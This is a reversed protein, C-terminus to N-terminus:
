NKRRALGAIGLLGAGLLLLTGPEPVSTTYTYTVTTTGGASANGGFFVGPVANGSYQGNQASVSYTATLAAPPIIFLPFDAPPVVLALTGSGTLGPFANFGPTAIGNIPGAVANVNATLSFPGTLTLPVSSNANTFPQNVGTNNFIDVEGTTTYALSISVGTLTGLTSDFNSLTFTDTFPAASTPTVHSFSVTYAMAPSSLVVAMAIVMALIIGTQCLLKKKM